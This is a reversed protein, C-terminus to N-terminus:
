EGPEVAPRLEHLYTNGRRVLQHGGPQSAEAVGQDPQQEHDITV